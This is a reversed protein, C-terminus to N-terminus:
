EEGRWVVAPRLQAVKGPFEFWQYDGYRCHLGDPTPLDAFRLITHFVPLYVRGTADTTLRPYVLRLTQDIEEGNAM